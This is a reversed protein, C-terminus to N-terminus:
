FTSLTMVADRSHQEIRSIPMDLIHACTSSPLGLLMRLVFCSRLDPSLEAVRCLEAPLIRDVDCNCKLSNRAAMRVTAHLLQECNGEDCDWLDIAQRVVREAGAANGTLLYAAWFYKGLISTLSRHHDSEAMIKDKLM